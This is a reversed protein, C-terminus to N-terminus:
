MGSLVLRYVGRAQGGGAHPRPHDRKKCQYLVLFYRKKQFTIYAEWKQERSLFCVGNKGSVNNSRLKERGTELAPIAPQVKEASPTRRMEASM